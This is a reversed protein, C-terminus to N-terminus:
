PLTLLNKKHGSQSIVVLIRRDHHLWPVQKPSYFFPPIEKNEANVEAKKQSTCNKVSILSLLKKVLNGAFYDM